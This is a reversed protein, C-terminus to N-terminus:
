SRFLEVIKDAIAYSPLIFEAGGLEIAERPMGFVVATEESEAITHGGADRIKKMARAGDAGMGTLLVGVTGAGYYELISEMTVDVSPKHLTDAPLHSLRVVYEKSGPRRPVITMHQDGPALYGHGPTIVDGRAAEKIPFTCIKNLREAFSGTFYGPMHQILVVPVGLDGPLLPLIDTITNPGGTSMGIVLIRGETSSVRGARRQARAAERKRKRKAHVLNRTSAGAAARVKYIIEDAVQRIEKSMTGPKGVFDVAGLELSEYAVLTEEHTISSVMVVPRPSEMMIYQLSTIGDMVPMNVDMTVVDPQLAKTQEIAEKGNRAIGIVKIEADSELIKKLEQRMFASDDVVLVTIPM